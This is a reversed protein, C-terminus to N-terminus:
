AVIIRRGEADKESIEEVEIYDLCEGEEWGEENDPEAGGAYYDALEPSDARVIAIHSDGSTKTVRYLPM